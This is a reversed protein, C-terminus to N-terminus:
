ALANLVHCAFLGLGNLIMVARKLANFIFTCGRFIVHGSAFCIVHIWGLTILNNIDQYTFVEEENHTDCSDAAGTQKPVM